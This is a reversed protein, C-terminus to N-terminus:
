GLGDESGIEEWDRFPRVPETSQAKPKPLSIAHAKIPLAEHTQPVPLTLTEKEDKQELAKNRLAILREREADSVVVTGAQASANVTINHGSRYEPFTLKLWEALARWDKEGATRIGELATQRAVERAAEIRPNLDPYEKRWTSLTNECIGTAMCAQKQTLGAALSALLRAVVASSYKTPRGAKGTEVIESNGEPQGTIAESQGSDLTENTEPAQAMSDGNSM